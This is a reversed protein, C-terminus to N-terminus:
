LRIQKDTWDILGVKFKFKNKEDELEEDNLQFSIDFIDTIDIKQLKRMDAIVNRPVVMPATFSIM